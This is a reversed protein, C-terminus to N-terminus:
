QFRFGDEIRDGRPVADSITPTSPFYDDGQLGGEMPVYFTFEGIKYPVMEYEGYDQQYIYCEVLYSNTIYDGLIVAKYIGYLIVAYYVIKNKEISIILWGIVLFAVLLVYAYGYRILPASFQWFLYSCIVAGIVLLKDLNEWRKKLFTWILGLVYLLICVFDGLILLKETGSLTTSFWNSFWVTVPTDVMASNYLAKGWTSIQAADVKILEASMKWDVDFLDLAPFPYLLWGSIIVTRAFWPVAVILGMGLYLFIDRWKKQKLLEYAPKILLVLIVGATLKLTIAYVCAVCLLAYPAIATSSKEDALCDLWKIVIFFIMCMIIYDSAPSVVEDAITTLYYVSAVRAYDSLNFKCSKWNKSLDLATVSILLAFFGSVAHISEDSFIRMSYLASLAFSSSNYAFRGHLNGQGPVVGYEEIWRISQAHYLDSDFHIYGRSTFYAWLVIIVFLLIKKSISYSTWCHKIFSIMFKRCIFFIIACGAILVLNAVIGVGTFLSFFQAYVTAIIIGAMLVSDMRKLKYGFLRGSLASFGSGLCFVTVGIYLWNFLISLM